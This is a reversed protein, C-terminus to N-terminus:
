DIILSKISIAMSNVSARETLENRKLGHSRYLGML